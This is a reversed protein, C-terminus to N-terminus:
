SFGWIPSTKKWAIMGCIQKRRNVFSPTGDLYGSAIFACSRMLKALYTIEPYLEPDRRQSLISLDLNVSDPALKRKASGATNIIPQGDQFRYYFYAGEKNEYPTENEVREDYFQFGHGDGRFSFRHRLPKKSKPNSFVLEVSAPHSEGGKWIWERTGGGRRLLGRVDANSTTQPPVPTARMLALSEILNSKGAGNPGILINLRKLDLSPTDPGFSLFNTLKIQRLLCADQNTTPKM